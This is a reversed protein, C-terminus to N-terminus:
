SHSVPDSPTSTDKKSKGLLANKLTEKKAWYRERMKALRRSRKCKACVWEDINKYFRWMPQACIDCLVEKTAMNGRGWGMPKITMNDGFFALPPHQRDCYPCGVIHYM